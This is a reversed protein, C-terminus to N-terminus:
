ISALRGPYYSTSLLIVSFFPFSFSPSLILPITTFIALHCVQDGLLSTHKQFHIFITPIPKATIHVSVCLTSSPNITDLTLALFIHRLCSLYTNHTHTQTQCPSPFSNRIGFVWLLHPHTSVILDVFLSDKTNARFRFFLHISKTTPIYHVFFISFFLCTAEFFAGQVVADFM